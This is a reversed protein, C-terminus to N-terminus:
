ARWSSSSRRRPWRTRSVRTRASRPAGSPASAPTSRPRTSRTAPRARDRGLRGHDARPQARRLRPGLGGNEGGILREEELEVNDFFLTWQKDPARTPMPIQQRTFGPADVDVICLSPLGLPGDDLADARWSWRRRGRGRRRLHLDEPRQPPVQRERADAVDLHQALEHRRRARHDRVRDEDHRAGIGRLWREKQEPTGHRALICGVIAPSVVILLLSCGAAAIEEGVAPASM